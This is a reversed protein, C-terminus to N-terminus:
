QWYMFLIRAWPSSNFLGSDKRFLGTAWGASHERRLKKALIEDMLGQGIEAARIQLVPEVSRQPNSFFVNAMFTLAIAMVVIGVVLEVLTFGKSNRSAMRFGSRNSDGCSNRCKTCLNNKHYPNPQKAANM